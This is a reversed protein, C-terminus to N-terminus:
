SLFQFLKWNLFNIRRLFGVIEFGHRCRMQTFLDFKWFIKQKVYVNDKFELNFSLMHTNLFLSNKCLSSLLVCFVLMGRHSALWLKEDTLLFRQRVRDSLIPTKMVLRTCIVFVSDKKFIRPSHDIFFHAKFLTLLKRLEYTSHFKFSSSALYEVLTKTKDSRLLRGVLLFMRKTLFFM